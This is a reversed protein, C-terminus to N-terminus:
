RGGASAFGVAEFRGVRRFSLPFLIACSVFSIWRVLTLIPEYALYEGNIVPFMWLPLKGPLANACYGLPYALKPRTTELKDLWRGYQELLMKPRRAYRLRGRRLRINSFSKFTPRKCCILLSQCTRKAPFPSIKLANDRFELEGCIRKRTGNRCCM